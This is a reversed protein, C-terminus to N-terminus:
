LSIGVASLVNALDNIVMDSNDMNILPLEYSLTCNYKRFKDKYKKMSGEYDIQKMAYDSAWLNLYFGILEHEIGNVPGFNSFDINKLFNNREENFNDILKIGNREFEHCLTLFNGKDSESFNDGRVLSMRSGNYGDEASMSKCLFGLKKDYDTLRELDDYSLHVPFFSGYPNPHNHDINYPNYRNLKFLDKFYKKSFEVRTESGDKRALEYGDDGFFVAVEHSLGMVESKFGDMKAYLSNQLRLRQGCKEDVIFDEHIISDLVYEIDKLDVM